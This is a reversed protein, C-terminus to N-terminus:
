PQQNHGDVKHVIRPQTPHPLKKRAQVEQQKLRKKQEVEWRANHELAWAAMIEEMEAPSQQRKGRGPLFRSLKVPRKSWVSVTAAAITATQHWDDGFPELKYFEKWETFERASM